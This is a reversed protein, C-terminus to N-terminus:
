EGKKKLEFPILTPKSPFLSYIDDIPIDEEISTQDDDTLVFLEYIQNEDQSLYLKKLSEKIIMEVLTNSSCPLIIKREGFQISCHIEATSNMQLEIHTMDSDIDNLTIDDDDLPCGDYMLQYYNENLLFLQCAFSRLSKINITLSSHFQITQQNENNAITINVPLNENILTFRISSSSSPSQFSILQTQISPVFDNSYLLYQHDIDLQNEQYIDFIRAYITYQQHIDDQGDDLDLLQNNKPKEISVLCTENEKVLLFKTENINSLKECYDIIKKTSNSALYKYVNSPVDTISQFIDEMIINRNSFHISISESSNYRFIQIMISIRFHISQNDTSIYHNVPQQIDNQSLVQENTGELVLVCDNPSIDILNLQRLLHENNLLHYIKTSKLANITVKNTEYTFAVKITINRDIGDIITSSITQYEDLIAKQERNFFSYENTPSDIIQDFHKLWENVQKWNATPHFFGIQEQNQKTRLTIQYLSSTNLNDETIIIPIIKSEPNNTQKILDAITENEITRKHENFFCLYNEDSSPKINYDTLFRQIISPIKVNSSIFYKFNNDQFRFEIQFLSEKQIIFLEQPIRKPAQTSENLFDLLIDNKDIIVFINEDYKEKKFMERLKHFLNEGKWFSSAVKGDPHTISFKLAKNLDITISEEKHNHIQEFLISATLPVSKVDLQFLSEYDLTTTTTTPQPIPIEKVHDDFFIDDVIPNTSTYGPIDLWIDKDDTEISNKSVDNEISIDNLYNSFRNPHQDIPKNNINEDWQKTEKEEINVMQEQLITRMRILHICLAVYNECKIGDPILNLISNEIALISCTEKLSDTWQRQLFHENTRLDNLLDTITQILVKIGDIDDVSITAGQLMESLENDLQIEIPTRLLQSVDTFLHQFNSISNAYLQCIHDFYMLQFDKIEYQEIQRQFNQEHDFTRIFDYLNMQSINEQHHKLQIAIQRLLNHGHYLKDLYMEKLYNWDTELQHKTLPISYEKNLDFTENTINQQNRRIHCQYNQIIHQYNIRCLLLYTRIIYSQLYLFDFDLQTDAQQFYDDNKTILTARSLQEIWICDYDTLTIVGTNDRVIQLISVQKSTLNNVLKKLPGVVHNNDDNNVEQELLSLLTNHNDILVRLIRMIIDGEDFNGTTVLYHIPTDRTIKTFRQTQDCAGPRILGDTFQHYANVAEIGRDIVISYNNNRNQFYQRNNSHKQGREYLENLTVNLFEDREILQTYTQHLLLYFQSLNYIWKMFKLFDTSDLVHRLVKLPLQSNIPNHLETKFHRFQIQIPMKTIFDQLRKQIQSQLDLQNVYTKYEALKQHIFYFIKNQFEEEAKLQDNITNYIPKIWSNEPQQHNLTLFAMQEFCRNLLICADNCNSHISLFNFTSLLRARVFHCVKTRQDNGALRHAATNDAIAHPALIPGHLNQVSENFLLLHWALAGFTSFYAVYVAPVNLVSVNAREFHMLDGNQTIICGCDYHVGRQQIVQRATSGFGFTNQLTLPEFTFTWLFNQKGGLLIMALLNVLSHRICLEDEDKCDLHFLKNLYNQELIENRRSYGIMYQEPQLLVRFVRLEESSPQLKNEIFSLLTNLSTLQNTCYYDYYINLLLMVKITKLDIINQQLQIWDAFNNWQQNNNVNEKLITKMHDYSQHFQPFISSTYDISLTFQIQHCLQLHENRQTTQQIQLLQYLKNAWQSHIGQIHDSKLLNLLYNWSRKSIITAFFLQLYENLETMDEATTLYNNIITKIIRDLITRDALPINSQCLIEATLKLLFYIQLQQFINQVATTFRQNRTNSLKSQMIKNLLNTTVVQENISRQFYFFFLDLLPQQNNETLVLSHYPLHYNKLLDDNGISEIILPLLKIGRDWCDLKPKNNREPELLYLNALEDFLFQKM